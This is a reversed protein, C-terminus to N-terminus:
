RYPFTASPPVTQGGKPPLVGGIPVLGASPQTQGPRIFQLGSNGAEDTFPVGQLPNARNRAYDQMLQVQQEKPLGSAQLIREFETPQAAKPNAREHADRRLYDQYSTERDAAAQLARQRMMESREQQERVGNMYTAQGGGFVQMADGIVGLLNPKFKAPQQDQMPQATMAPMNAVDPLQGMGQVPAGMQQNDGIGPTGYPGNSMPDFMQGFAQKKKMGLLAM